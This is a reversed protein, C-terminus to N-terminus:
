SFVRPMVVAIQLDCNFHVECWKCLHTFNEMGKCLRPPIYILSTYKGSNIYSTNWDKVIVASKKNLVFDILSEKNKLIQKLTLKTSM